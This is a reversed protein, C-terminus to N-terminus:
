GHITSEATSPWVSSSDPSTDSWSDRAPIDSPGTFPMGETFGAKLVRGPHVSLGLALSVDGTPTRALGISAEHLPNKPNVAVFVTAFWQYTMDGAGCQFWQGMHVLHM